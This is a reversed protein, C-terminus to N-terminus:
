NLIKEAKANVLNKIYNRNKSNIFKIQIYVSSFM